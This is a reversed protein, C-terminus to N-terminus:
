QDLLLERDPPIPRLTTPFFCSNKCLSPLLTCAAVIHLVDQGVKSIFDCDAKDTTFKTVMVATDEVIQQQHLPISM